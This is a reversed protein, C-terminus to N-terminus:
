GPIDHARLREGLASMVQLAFMPTEHVLFLFRHEDILALESDEIAVATATRTTHDILALEGFVDDPECTTLVRDGKRVEVKGSVVGYMHHAVSGEEFVVEGASYRRTEQASRFLGSVKM